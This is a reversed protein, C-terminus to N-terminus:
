SPYGLSKATSFFQNSEDYRGLEKLCVGKMYYYYGLAVDGKNTLEITKDFCQLANSYEKRGYLFEAKESWIYGEYPDCEIAKDYCNLTEPYDGLEEFIDPKTLWSYYNYPDVQISSDYSSIAEYYKGQEHLILGKLRWAESNKPSIEISKNIADLAVDLDQNSRAMIRLVGAKSHWAESYYPNIQTAKEYCTLAESLDRMNEHAMGKYYWAEENDPDLKLSKDFSEIAQGYNKQDYLSIGENYYKGANPALALAVILFILVAVVIGTVKKWNRNSGSKKGTYIRCKLEEFKTKPIKTGCNPCLKWNPEITGMCKSCRSGTM